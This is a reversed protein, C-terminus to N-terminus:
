LQALVIAPNIYRGRYKLGWHLHPGTTRGTMGVRGIRAGTPIVQGMRLTIGGRRDVLYRGGKYEKIHGKLHCYVQTWNGSKIVVSTGCATRDSLGIIKGGWWARVGSGLPAAMDIGSHFQKKRTVPNTRYGYTSTYRDFNEVPFSGKGWSSSKVLNPKENISDPPVIQEHLLNEELDDTSTPEPKILNGNESWNLNTRIGTQRSTSKLLDNNNETKLSDSSQNTQNNSQISSQNTQNNPQSEQNLQKSDSSDTTEFKYAGPISYGGIAVCDFRFGFRDLLPKRLPQAQTNTKPIPPPAIPEGFDVSSPPDINVLYNYYNDELEKLKKDSLYPNDGDSYTDIQCDTTMQKAPFSLLKPLQQRSNIIAITSILSALCFLGWKTSIKM